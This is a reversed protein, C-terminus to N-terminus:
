QADHCVEESSSMSPVPRHYVRGKTEVPYGQLYVQMFIKTVQESTAVTGDQLRYFGKRIPDARLNLATCSLTDRPKSM